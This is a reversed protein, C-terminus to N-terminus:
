IIFFRRLVRHVSCVGVGAHGLPHKVAVVEQGTVDAVWCLIHDVPYICSMYVYEIWHNDWLM